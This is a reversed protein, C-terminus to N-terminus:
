DCGWIEIDARARAEEDSMPVLAGRIVCVEEAYQAACEGVREVKKLAKVSLPSLSGPISAWLGILKQVVDGSLRGTSDNICLAASGRPPTQAASCDAEDSTSHSSRADDDVVAQGAEFSAGRMAVVSGASAKRGAGVPESESESESKGVCVPEAAAVPESQAVAGVVGLVVFPEATREEWTPAEEAHEHEEACPPEASGGHASPAHEQASPEELAPTPADAQALTASGLEPSSTEGGEDDALAASEDAKAADRSSWFRAVNARVERAQAKLRAELDSSVQSKGQEEEEGKTAANDVTPTRSSWFRAINARVERAQAKLMSELDRNVPSKAQEEGPSMDSMSPTSSSKTLTHCETREGGDKAEETPKVAYLVRPEQAPKADSSSDSAKTSATDSAQTSADSLDQLRAVVQRFHRTDDAALGGEGRVEVLAAMTSLVSQAKAVLSQKYRLLANEKLLEAKEQRLSADDRACERQMEGLAEGVDDLSAHLPYRERLGYRESFAKLLRGLDAGEANQLARLKNLEGQAETLLLKQGRIVAGRSTIESRAKRLAADHQSVEERLTQLAQENNKMGDECM